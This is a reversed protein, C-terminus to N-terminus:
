EIIAVNSRSLRRQTKRPPQPAPAADPELGKRKNKAANREKSDNASNIRLRFGHITPAPLAIAAEADAPTEFNAYAMCSTAGPNLWRLETIAGVPSFHAQLEEETIDLPMNGIFVCCKAAEKRKRWFGTLSTRQRPKTPDVMNDEAVRHMADLKKDLRQRLELKKKEKRSLLSADVANEDIICVNARVAM